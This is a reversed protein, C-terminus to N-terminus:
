PRLQRQVWLGVNVASMPNHCRASFYIDRFTAPSICGPIRALRPYKLLVPLTGAARPLAWHRADCAFYHNAGGLEPACNAAFALRPAPLSPAPEGLCPTPPLEFFPDRWQRNAPARTHFASRRTAGDSKRPWLSVRESAMFFGVRTRIKFRHWQSRTARQLQKRKM